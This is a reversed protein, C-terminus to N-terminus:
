RSIWSRCVERRFGGLPQRRLDHLGPLLRLGQSWPDGTAPSSPTEGRARRERMDFEVERHRVYRDLGRFLRPRPAELREARPAQGTLAAARRGEPARTSRPRAAGASGRSSRRPRTPSPRWRGITEFTSGQVAISRDVMQDYASPCRPPTRAGRSLCGVPAAASAARPSSPPRARAARQRRDRRRPPRTARGAGGPASPQARGPHTSRRRRHEDVVEAAPAELADVEVLCSAAWRPRGRRPRPATSGVASTGPGRPPWTAPPAPSRPRSPPWARGGSAARARRRGRAGCRSSTGRPAM